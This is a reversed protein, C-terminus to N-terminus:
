GKGAVDRFLTSWQSTLAEFTFPEALHRASGPQPRHTILRRMHLALDTRDAYRCGAPYLEPYALRDPVLPACGAYCAELMALGFFENLATSVAIDSSRLLATYDAPTEPEGLHVVRQGLRAAAREVDDRTDAHPRGAIAVEFDLGQAVLEHVAKLFASPNKDHEWRHPWIVRPRESRILLTRDILTGDFPPAVVASKARIREPLHQPRHDPFVRVFPRIAELFSELNYSSNFVCRDAALASTINVLPYHYDWEATHRVPYVLQNEHFYVISPIDRLADDTLALLDCLNVFTSAFLVDWPRDGRPRASEARASSEDWMGARAQIEEALVIASGRMRWKWKRAPMTVHDIVIGEAALHRTLGDLVARHSGGYYPEVALVRLPAVSM